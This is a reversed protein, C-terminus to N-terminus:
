RLYLGYSRTLNNDARALHKLYIYAIRDVSVLSSAGSFVVHNINSYVLKTIHVVFHFKYNIKNLYNVNLTIKQSEPKNAKNRGIKLMTPLMDLPKPNKLISLTEMLSALRRFLLCGFDILLQTRSSHSHNQKQSNLKFFISQNIKIHNYSFAM